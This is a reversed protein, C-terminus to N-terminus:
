MDTVGSRKRVLAWGQEHASPPDSADGGHFQGTSHQALKSNWVAAIVLAACRVHDQFAAGSNKEFVKGVYTSRTDM